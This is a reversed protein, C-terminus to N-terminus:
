KPSKNIGSLFEQKESSKYYCRSLIMSNIINIQHNQTSTVVLDRDPKITKECYFFLNPKM